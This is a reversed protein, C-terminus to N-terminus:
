RFNQQLPSPEQNRPGKQNRLSQLNFICAFCTFHHNGSTSPKTRLNISFSASAVCCRSAQSQISCPQPGSANAAAFFSNASRDAASGFSSGSALALASGLIPASTAAFFAGYSLALTNIHRC